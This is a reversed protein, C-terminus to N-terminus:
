SRFFSQDAVAKHARAVQDVQPVSHRLHAAIFTPSRPMIEQLRLRSRSLIESVPSVRLSTGMVLLLDVAPRDEMLAKDFDETLKEGFFTIDPKMVM